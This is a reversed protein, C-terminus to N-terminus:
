FADMKSVRWEGAGRTLTVLVRNQDVRTNNTGKATTQQDVFVLAVVKQPTASVVSAAAIDATLTVQNKVTQARVGSMTKAYERRFGPALVAEANKVDQDITSWKYSLVQQTLKTAADLGADRASASTIPGRGADDSAQQSHWWSFATVAVLVLCLVVLVIMLRLSDLLGLSTAPEAPEAKWSSPPPPATGTTGSAPLEPESDDPTAAAAPVPSPGSAAVHGATADALDSHCYRCIVAAKKITEACYPCLKEDPALDVPDAV